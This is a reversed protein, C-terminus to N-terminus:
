ALLERIVHQEEVGTLRQDLGQFKYTFKAHDIGLCHLVTANLDRWAKAMEIAFIGSGGGVDLLAHVNALLPQQAVATSSARSHANMFDYVPVLIAAFAVVWFVMEPWRWRARRALSAASSM